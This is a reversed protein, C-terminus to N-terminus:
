AKDMSVRILGIVRRPRDPSAVFCGCTIRDIDMDIDMDMDM